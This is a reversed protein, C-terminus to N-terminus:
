YEFVSEDHNTNKEDNNNDNNSQNFVRCRGWVLAAAAAAGTTSQNNIGVNTLWGDDTRRQPSPGPETCERKVM